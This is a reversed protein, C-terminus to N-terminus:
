QTGMLFKISKAAGAKVSQERIRGYGLNNWWKALDKGDTKCIFSIDDSCFGGAEWFYRPLKEVQRFRAGPIQQELGNSWLAVYSELQKLSEAKFTITTYGEQGNSNYELRVYVYTKLKSTKTKKTTKMKPSGTKLTM